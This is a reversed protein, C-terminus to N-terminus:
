LQSNASINLIYNEYPYIYTHWWFMILTAVRWFVDHLHTCDVEFDVARLYTRKKFYYVNYWSRFNSNTLFYLLWSVWTSWHLCQSLRIYHKNILQIYYSYIVSCRGLSKMKGELLVATLQQQGVLRQFHTTTEQLTTVEMIAVLYDDLTCISGTGLQIYSNKNYWVGMFVYFMGGKVWRISYFYCRLTTRM